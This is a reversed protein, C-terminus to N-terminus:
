LCVAAGSCTSVDVSDDYQGEDVELYSRDTASGDAAVIVGVNNIVCVDVTAPAHHGRLSRGCISWSRRIALSSTAARGGHGLRPAAGRRPCGTDHQRQSRCPAGASVTRIIGGSQIGKLEM